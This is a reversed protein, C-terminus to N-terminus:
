EPRGTIFSPLQDDDEIPEPPPPPPAQQIEVHAQHGQHDDHGQLDDHGQHDNHGRHDNHGQGDHRPQSGQPGQPQRDYGQQRDHGQPRDYGQQRDYGHHQEDPQEGEGNMMEPDSPTQQHQPRPQGQFGEGQANMVRFYHEAHQFFNEAAIRDGASQAERALALYREFVQYANGRIKVNPGNSDFTQSRHQPRPGGGGRNPNSHYPNGGGNRGRSRKQPRM